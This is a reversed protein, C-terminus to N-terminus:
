IKKGATKTAKKEEEKKRRYKGSKIKRFTPGTVGLFTAMEKEGSRQLLEPFEALLRQHILHPAKMRLYTENFRAECYYKIVILLTLGCISPFRAIGDFLDTRSMRFVVGDEDAVVAEESPLQLFFSLVSTAIDLEKMFWNSYVKVTKKTDDLYHQCARLMGKKIFWVFGCVQGEEMLIDGKKVPIEDCKQLVYNMAEDSLKWYTQSLYNLIEKM